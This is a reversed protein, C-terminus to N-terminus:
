YSDDLIDDEDKEDNTEWPRPRKQRWGGDTGFLNGEDAQELGLNYVIDALDDASLEVGEREVDELQTELVDREVMKESIRRRLDAALDALLDRGDAAAREARKMLRASDHRELMSLEKAIEALRRRCRDIENSLATALEEPTQPLRSISDPEHALQELKALDGAAYAANIAMMLDTRYARDIEDLALDPHFRRALRRYLQKLAALREGELAPRPTEAKGRYRYSGSAAASEEFRWPEGTKERRPLVDDWELAIERYRRLARRLEDIEAQISDLRRNLSELRVRVQYEFASIAALREALQAEADILQPRLEDLVAQLARTREGWNEDTPTLKSDM